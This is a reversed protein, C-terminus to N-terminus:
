NKLQNREVSIRFLDSKPLLGLILARNSITYYAIINLTNYIYIIMNVILILVAVVM